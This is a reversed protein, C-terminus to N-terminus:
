VLTICCTATFSAYNISRFGRHLSAIFCVNIRRFVFYRDNLVFVLAFLCALPTPEITLRPLNVTNKILLM